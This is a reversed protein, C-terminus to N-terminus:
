TGLIRDVSLLPLSSQLQYQVWEPIDYRSEKPFGPKKREAIVLPLM